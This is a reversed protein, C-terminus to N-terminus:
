VSFDTCVISTDSPGRVPSRKFCCGWCVGVERMIKAKDKIHKPLAGGRRARTITPGANGDSRHKNVVNDPHKAELLAHRSSDRGGQLATNTRNYVFSSSHPDAFSNHHSVEPTDRRTSYPTWPVDVDHMNRPPQQFEVGFRLVEPLYSIPQNTQDNARFVPSTWADYPNPGNDLLGCHGQTDAADIADVNTNNLALSGHQAAIAALWYAQQDFTAALRSSESPTDAIDSWYRSGLNPNGEMTSEPPFVDGRPTMANSNSITSEMSSTSATESQLNRQTNLPQFAEDYKRKNLQPQTEERQWNVDSSAYPM